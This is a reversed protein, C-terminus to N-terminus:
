EHYLSSAEWSYLSCFSFHKPNPSMFDIPKKTVGKVAVQFGGMSMYISRLVATEGM